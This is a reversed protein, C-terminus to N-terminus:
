KSPHVSILKVQQRGADITLEFWTRRAYLEGKYADWKEGLHLPHHSVGSKCFCAADM